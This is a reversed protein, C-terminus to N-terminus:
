SSVAVARLLSRESMEWNRGYDGEPRRRENSDFRRRTRRREKALSLAQSPSRRGSDSCPFGGESPPASGDRDQHARDLFLRYLLRSRIEHLGSSPPVSSSVHM